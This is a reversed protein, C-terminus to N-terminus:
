SNLINLLEYNRHMTYYHRFLEFIEPRRKILYGLSIQENNMMGKSLISRLTDKMIDNMEKAFSKNVMFIGGAVYSREDWFYDEDLNDTNALDPYSLMFIQILVKGDPLNKGGINFGVAPDVGDFFRSIGADLWLFNDTGFPDMAAAKEVWDFKSYQIINYLSSNCEIRNPGTIRSRYAESELISDMEKKHSYYHTDELGSVVVKTPLGNRSEIVFDQLEQDVFVVMPTNVSLTRAFWELYSDWGRGDLNERQINYLSTVITTSM